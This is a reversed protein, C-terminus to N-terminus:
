ELINQTLNRNEEDNSTSFRHPANSITNLVRKMSPLTNNTSSDATTSWSSSPVRGSSGGGGGTEMITPMTTNNNRKFSGLRLSRSLTRSLPRFKDMISTTTTTESPEVAHRSELLQTVLKDLLVLDADSSKSNRRSLGRSGNNITGGSSTTSSMPLVESLKAFYICFVFFIVM